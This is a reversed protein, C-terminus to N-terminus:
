RALAAAFMLSAGRSQTNRLRVDYSGRVQTPCWFVPSAGSKSDEGLVRQSNHPTLLLDMSQAHNDATGVFVRLGDGLQMNGLSIDDGQEVVGGFLTWQNPQEIFRVRGLAQEVRKCQVLCRGAADILNRDPVNWGGDRLIALACFSWSQRCKRLRLTITYQGAQRPRFEVLALPQPGDDYAVRNGYPDYVDIDVDLTDGDGHGVFGYPQNAELRRRLSVAQGDRVYAGLISINRDYGFNTKDSIRRVVDGVNGLAQAVFDVPSSDAARAASGLSVALGFV